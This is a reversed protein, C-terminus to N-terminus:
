GLRLRTRERIVPVVPTVVEVDVGHVTGRRDSPRWLAGGGRYVPQRARSRELVPSDVVATPIEVLGRASALSRPVRFIRASRRISAAHHGCDDPPRLTAVAVSGRTRLKECGHAGRSEAAGPEMPSHGRRRCSTCHHQQHCAGLVWRPGPSGPRSKASLPRARRQASRAAIVIGCRPHTGAVWTFYNFRLGHSTSSVSLASRPTVAPSRGCSSRWAIDSLSRWRLGSCAAERKRRAPLVNSSSQQRSRPSLQWLASTGRGSARSSPSCPSGSM